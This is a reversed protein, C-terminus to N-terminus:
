LSNETRIEFSIVMFKIFHGFMLSCRMYFINEKPCQGFLPPPAGGARIKQGKKGCQGKYKPILIMNHSVKQDNKVDFDDFTGFNHYNDSM